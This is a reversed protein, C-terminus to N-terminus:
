PANRKRGPTAVMVATCIALPILSQYYYYTGDVWAYLLLVNIAYFAPIREAM